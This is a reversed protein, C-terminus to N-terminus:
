VRCLFMMHSVDVDMMVMYSLTNFQLLYFEQEYGSLFLKCIDKCLISKLNSM